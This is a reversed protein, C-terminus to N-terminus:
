KVSDDSKLNLLINKLKEPIPLGMETVNELISIGENTLYFIIIMTRITQGSGFIYQDLTSGLAVLVFIMTKKAIGSFGIKSSLKKQQIAMLVGSIYDLIVFVALAYILSDLGGLVYEIGGAIASTIISLWNAVM